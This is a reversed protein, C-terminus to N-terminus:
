VEEKTSIKESDELEMLKKIGEAAEDFQLKKLSHKTQWYYAKKRTNVSLVKTKDLKEAESNM